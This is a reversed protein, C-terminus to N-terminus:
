QTITDAAPQSQQLTRSQAARMANLVEVAHTTELDPNQAVDRQCKTEAIEQLIDKAGHTALEDAVDVGLQWAETDTECKREKTAVAHKTGNLSTVTGTCSVVGTRADYTTASGVPVSCGGELRRMMGRESWSCLRAELNDLPQLLKDVEDDEECIEIALVGQGPAHHMVPEGVFETIREQLGLRILGAAALVLCSFGNAPDDLKALRTGVNGRVDAFKLHPFSRSIQASRRMSSTAVVSNAPLDSLSKYQDSCHAAMVIVDRPDEREGVVSIKFGDPLQTPLDKLCHVSIRCTKDMLLQELEVAWLGKAVQPSFAHLPKTQINDGMASIPVIPFDYDPYLKQLSAQISKTQIMALKSKRTGIPFTKRTSGNTSSM